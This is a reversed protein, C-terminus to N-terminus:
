RLAVMRRLERLLATTASSKRLALVARPGKGVRAGLAERDLPLSFITVTAGSTVDTVSRPSADSASIFGITNPHRAAETVSEAGGIVAGSRAALSLLDLVAALNAAQVRGLLGSPDVRPVDLAQAIMGARSEVIEIAERTPTVWAGRGPAKGRYDVEVVEDEGVVLRVLEDPNGPERTAICTRVPGPRPAAAPARKKRKM